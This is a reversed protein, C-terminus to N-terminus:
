KRKELFRSALKVYEPNIEFGIYDLALDAIVALESGSGVFPVVVLGGSLPKAALLLKQTLEYPKQTSHAFTSHDCHAEKESNPFADDCTTCWLWREVMGAGGALAPVKLVDRPLAGKDNVTYTTSTKGFRGKTTTRTKNKNKFNKIYTDSYPERVDDANFIRQDADKWAVIISEHTRQWFSTTPSTKNTYHWVLWRKELELNVSVHALIESFGYVYLTGSPKLIRVAESLWSRSWTIYEEMTMSDSKNGFDKGINYPPDALVIDASADALQAM